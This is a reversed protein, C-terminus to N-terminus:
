QLQWSNASVAFQLDIKANQLQRDLEQLHEKKLVFSISKWIRKARDDKGAERVRYVMEKLPEMRRECEQLTHLIIISSGPLQHILLQQELLQKVYDLVSGLQELTEGLRIFETPTNKIERVFKATKQVTECLQIALSVVAFASSVGDM